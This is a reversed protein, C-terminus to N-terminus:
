SVGSNPYAPPRRLPPCPSSNHSAQSPLAYLIQSRATSCCHGTQQLKDRLGGQLHRRLISRKRRRRGRQSRRRSQLPHRFSPPWRRQSSRRPLLQLPAPAKAPAPTPSESPPSSVEKPTDVEGGTVRRRVGEAKKTIIFDHDSFSFYETCTHNNVRHLPCKFNTFLLSSDVQARSFPRARSFPGSIVESAENDPTPSGASRARGRRTQDGPRPNHTKKDFTQELTKALAVTDQM